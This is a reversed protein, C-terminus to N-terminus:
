FNTSGTNYLRRCQWGPNSYADADVKGQEILYRACNVCDDVDVIGWQGNLRQRYERGYGTSGGYNVDAVAFGRSTWFQIALNFTSSTASTPGGHSFILLPPKTNKPAIFDRNKPQYYYAYAFRHNETPFEITEPISLYGPDVFSINSKRIVEVKGNILRVRIISNPETPSGALLVANGPSAKVASITTYPIDINRLSKTIPNLVALYSIGSKIYSCIINGSPEFDYNSVGFVWQPSGFEAEMPYLPEAQGDIWRYLNWWGTRESIFYLTGDPAFRPQCISDQENGAIKVVKTIGGEESIDGSWIETYDWPMNPHNWTLWVLNNGDPSLRPSAYFDNGSVLTNIEKNELNISVISNIAQKQPNSHDECICIIRYRQHDIIGDAFRLQGEPTIPAIDGHLDKKYIRQDSYHSFYVVGNNVLFAGGGYEHVRTRANYPKPNIDLLGKGPSWCVIVSRGEETPRSEIWYINDNCTSIQSEFRTTGSSILGSSVPSKWSGYVAIAKKSM